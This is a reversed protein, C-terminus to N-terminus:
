LELIGERGSWGGGGGGLVVVVGGLYIKKGRVYLQAAYSYETGQSNSAVCEYKGQMLILLTFHNYSIHIFVGADLLSYEDMKFVNWIGKYDGSYNIKLKSMFNPLFDKCLLNKVYINKIHSALRYLLVMDTRHNTLDKPVCVCVSM